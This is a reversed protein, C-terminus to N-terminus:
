FRDALTLLGGAIGLLGVAWTLLVHMSRGAGARRDRDAELADLRDGHERAVQDIRGHVRDLQDCTQRKHSAIEASTAVDALQARMGRVDARTEDVRQAISDLKAAHARDREALLDLISVEQPTM